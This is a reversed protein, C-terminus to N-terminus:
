SDILTWTIRRCPVDDIEYYYEMGTENLTLTYSIHEGEDTTFERTFVDPGARDWVLPGKDDDINDYSMQDASVVVEYERDDSLSPPPEAGCELVEVESSYSHTGSNALEAVTLTSSGDETNATGSAASTTAASTESTTGPPATSATASTDETGGCSGLLLAVALVFPWWKAQDIKM